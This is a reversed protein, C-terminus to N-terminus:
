ACIQPIQRLFPLALLRYAFLGHRPSPACIPSQAPVFSCAQCFIHTATEEM